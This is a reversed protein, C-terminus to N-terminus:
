LIKKCFEPTRKSLVEVRFFNVAGRVTLVASSGSALVPRSTCDPRRRWSSASLMTITAHSGDVADGAAAVRLAASRIGDTAFSRDEAASSWEEAAGVPVDDDDSTESSRSLGNASLSFRAVASGRRLRSPDDDDDAASASKRQNKGSLM